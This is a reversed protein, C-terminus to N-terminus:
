GGPGDVIDLPTESIRHFSEAWDRFLRDSRDDWALAVDSRFAAAITDLRQFLAANAFMGSAVFVPSQRRALAMAQEPPLTYTASGSEHVVYGAAAQQDLWEQVLPENCGTQRAVMGATMPGAGDMAGYLGLQDGLCTMLVTTAGGLDGVVTGMFQQLKQEDVNM